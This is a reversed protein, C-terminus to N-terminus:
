NNLKNRYITHKLTFNDIIHINFNSDYNYNYFLNDEEDLYQYFENQFLFINENNNYRELNQETGKVKIMNEEYKKFNINFKMDKNELFIQILGNNRGFNNYGGVIFIEKQENNEKNIRYFISHSRLNYEFNKNNINILNWKKESKKNYNNKIFLYEIDNIYKNNEYDYGFFSFIIDSNYIMYSSESHPCNMKPLNIWKNEKISYKEVETTNIGSICIIQDNNIKILSGKNHFKNLKNLDYIKNNEKSYFYLYNTDPGTIILFGNSISLLIDYSHNITSDYYLKFKSKENLSYNIISFKMEDIKFNYLSYNLFYYLDNPSLDLKPLLNLEENYSFKSSYSRTSTLIINPNNNNIISINSNNNKKFYLIESIKKNEKNSNNFLSDNINLFNNVKRKGILSKNIKSKIPSKKYLFSNNNYAKTSSPNNNSEKNQINKNASTMLSLYKNNKFKKQSKKPKMIFYNEEKEINNYAHNNLLNNYSFDTTHRAKHFIFKRNNFNINDLNDLNNKSNEYNYFNNKKSNYQYLKNENFSMSINNSNANSNTNNIINNNINMEYKIKLENYKEKIEKIEQELFLIKKNLKKIENDKEIIINFNNKYDDEINIGSKQYKKIQGLLFKINGKLNENEKKLENKENLNMAKISFSNNKNIKLKIQNKNNDFNKSINKEENIINPNIKIHSFSKLSINNLQKTINSVTSQFNDFDNNIYFNTKLSNEILKQKEKQSGLYKNLSKNRKKINPNM